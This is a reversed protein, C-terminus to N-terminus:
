GQTGVKARLNGLYSELGEICQVDKGALRLLALWYDLRVKTRTRELGHKIRNTSQKGRRDFDLLLIVEAPEIQEITSIVQLLSRGGTKACIINGELGFGRLTKADNKGEVIVPVGQASEQILADLM